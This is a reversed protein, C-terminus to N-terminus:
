KEGTLEKEFEAMCQPCERRKVRLLSKTYHDPIDCEENLREFIHRAQVQLIAEQLCGEWSKEHYTRSSMISTWSNDEYDKQAKLRAEKIQEDTLLWNNM